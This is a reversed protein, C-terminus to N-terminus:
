IGKKYSLPVFDHPLIDDISCGLVAAIRQLVHASPVAKKNLYRSLQVSSIGVEEAVESILMRSEWIAKDLFYAFGSKWEDETLEDIHDFLKIRRLRSDLEDYLFTIGDNLVVIVSVADYERWKEIRDHYHLYRVAFTNMAENDYFHKDGITLREESVPKNWM